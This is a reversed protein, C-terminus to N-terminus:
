NDDHLVSKDFFEFSMSGLKISAYISEYHPILAEMKPVLIDNCYEMLQQLVEKTMEEWPPYGVMCKPELISSYFGYQLLKMDREFNNELDWIPFQVSREFQKAIKVVLQTYESAGTCFADSAKYGSALFPIDKAKAYAIACVWMAMQCHLCQVQCNTLLPYVRGLMQWSSQLWSESLRMKTSGSYLVGAYEVCESGFKSILREASYELYPEGFITGPQCSLLVAKYGRSVIDCVTLFSDKGGSFLVLVEGKALTCM